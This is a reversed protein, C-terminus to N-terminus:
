QYDKGVGAYVAYDTPPGGIVGAERSPQFARRVSGDFALVSAVTNDGRAYAEIHRKPHVGQTDNYYMQRSQESWRVTDSPGLQRFAPAKELPTSPAFDDPLDTTFHQRVDCTVYVDFTRVSANHLEILRRAQAPSYSSPQGGQVIFGIIVVAAAHM